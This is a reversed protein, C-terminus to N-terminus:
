ENKVATVESQINKNLIRTELLDGIEVQQNVVSKGNKLTISYGRNLITAPDILNLQKDLTTIQAQQRELYRKSVYRQGRCCLGKLVSCLGNLPSIPLYLM